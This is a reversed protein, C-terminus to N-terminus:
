ALPVQRRSARGLLSLRRAAIQLQGAIRRTRFAARQSLTFGARSPKDQALVSSQTPIPSAIGYAACQDLQLALAPTAQWSALDYAACILADALGPARTAHALLKRAGSPWLVYAAAGTYDQWLRAIPAAPHAAGLLKARGRTELSIHDVDSLPEVLALFTATGPLLLADDELILHPAQGDAVMKWAAVHSAMVAKEVERLPRQWGLWYPDSTPPVLTDPTVAPLRAFELGLSQLQAAQFAMRETAKDLNIVLAKM